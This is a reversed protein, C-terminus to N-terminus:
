NVKELKFVYRQQGGRRVSAELLRDVSPHCVFDDKNVKDGDSAVADSLQRIVIEQNSWTVSLPAEYVKRTNIGQMQLTGSTTSNFIFYTWIDDLREGTKANELHLEHTSRWKGLLLNHDAMLDDFNLLEGGTADLADRIQITPGIKGSKDTQKATMTLIKIIQEPKLEKNKSKLLAAAGAVVPSAMSTGTMEQMGESRSVTIGFLTWFPACRSDSVSWIDVGPAAVTSYNVQASPDKGFNSFESAYQGKGDVAEVKIIQKSRNMPDMGMLLKENGAATVIVCGHDEAIKYIYEWLDEGRKDTSQSIFIQDAIPLATAEPTFDRGISLNIVDAGRYIAYLIGEMVNFMTMEGGLAVPIWSCEPAIGSVGKGNDQAGIAIGAVHSGHCYEAFDNLTPDKAPPLVLTTQSPIHIPDVYRQGIEPHGLDFYSDVIAVKVESSGKTIDWADYAQILRFYEDYSAKAFGPDSPTATEALVGNTVVRFDIGAIKSPLENLVATLQATPVVLLMCATSTNYYAIQYESGPYCSKFQQAFSTMDAKIDQSNFYVILQNDIIKGYPNDPDPVFRTSDVSPMYNDNPAPLEPVGSIPDNWDRVPTPNVLEPPYERYPNDPNDPDTYPNNPNNPNYPSNPDNPNNLNGPYDPNDPDNKRYETSDVPPFIRGFGRNGAPDKPERLLFLLLSILVIGLLFLLARWFFGWSGLFSWVSKNNKDM